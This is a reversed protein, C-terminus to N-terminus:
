GEVVDGKGGRTVTFPYWVYYWLIFFASALIILLNLAFPMEAYRTVFSELFAAIFFVPILGVMIKIGRKAGKRLSQLRTYTGPFIFSNGMMIGAGGAITIASLELTGHIFVIPMSEAFVGQQWLLGFFTGIFIGNYFLYAISGITLVIGAVFVKFSVMINNFAIYFFMQVQEMDQYVGTPNGAEVNSETMAVYGWGLTKVPLDEDLITGFWGWLLCATFIIFAYLIYAHSERIIIPLDETWFRLFKGRDAKRNKYIALHTHAALGNLYKVTQSKPYFTRAFALDNSLQVYLEALRDPDIDQNEGKQLM